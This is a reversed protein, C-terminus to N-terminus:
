NTKDYEAELEKIKNLVGEYFNYEIRAYITSLATPRVKHYVLWKKLDTLIDVYYKTTKKLQSIAKASVKVTNENTETYYDIYENLRENEEQLKYILTDEFRVVDGKLERKVMNDYDKWNSIKEM